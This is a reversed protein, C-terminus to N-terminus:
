TKSILLTIYLNESSSQDSSDISFKCTFKKFNSRKQSSGMVDLM